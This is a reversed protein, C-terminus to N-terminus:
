KYHKSAQMIKKKLKAQLVKEFSTVTHVPDVLGLKYEVLVDEMDRRNKRDEEKKFTNVM